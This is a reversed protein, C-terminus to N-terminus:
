ILKTYTGSIILSKLSCIARAGPLFSTQVRWARFGLRLDLSAPQIQGEIPPNDASIIGQAFADQIQDAPLIGNVHVMTIAVGKNIAAKKVLM